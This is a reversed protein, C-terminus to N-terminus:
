SHYLESTTRFCIQGQDNSGNSVPETGIMDDALAKNLNEILKLGWSHNANIKSEANRRIIDRYMRGLNAQNTAAAGDPDDENEM